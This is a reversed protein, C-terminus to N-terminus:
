KGKVHFMGKKMFGISPAPGHIRSTKDREKRKTADKLTQSPLVMGAEKAEQLERVQREGAKKKIGRVIPLPVSHKKKERGTLLKYHEDQYNRKQKGIFNKAGLTRVEKATDNWDLLGKERRRKDRKEFAELESAARLASPHSPDPKKTSIPFSGPCAIVQVERKRKTATGQAKAVQKKTM